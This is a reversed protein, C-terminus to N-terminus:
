KRNLYIYPLFLKKTPENCNICKGNAKIKFNSLSKQIAGTKPYNM